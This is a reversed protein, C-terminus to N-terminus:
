PTTTLFLIPAMCAGGGTHFFYVAGILDWVTNGAGRETLSRLNDPVAAGVAGAAQVGTLEGSLLAVMREFRSPQVAEAKTSRPVQPDTKHCNASDGPFDVYLTLGLFKVTDRFAERSPAHCM